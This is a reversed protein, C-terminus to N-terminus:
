FELGDEVVWVECGEVGGGMGVSVGRARRGVSRWSEGPAFAPMPTLTDTRKEKMRREIM